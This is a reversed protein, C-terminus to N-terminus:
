NGGASEVNVGEKSFTTRTPEEPCPQEVLTEYNVCKGAELLLEAAKIRLEMEADREVVNSPFTFFASSSFHPTSGDAVVDIYNGDTMLCEHSPVSDGFTADRGALENTVINEGDVPVIFDYRTSRSVYREGSQPELDETSSIPVGQCRVAIVNDSFPPFNIYLMVIKSPTDKWEEIAQMMKAELYNNKQATPGIANNRDTISKQVTPTCSAFVFGVLSLVLLTKIHKINTM